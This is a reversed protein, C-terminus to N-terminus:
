LQKQIFAVLTFLHDVISYRKRFGAQSENIISNKEIWQNLRKNIIYSYLKDCINLLSIGRYNDPINPDVKKHLPQIYAESWNDPYSTSSFLKNLYRVLFPVVSCVSNKLFESIMGDPGAAKDNKLMRIAEYMGAQSIDRDLSEIDIQGDGDAEMDNNTRNQELEETEDFDHVEEDNADLVYNDSTSENASFFRLFTGSGNRKALQIQQM